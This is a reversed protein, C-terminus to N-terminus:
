NHSIQQYIIHFRQIQHQSRHNQAQQLHIQLVFTNTKYVIYHQVTNNPQDRIEIISIAVILFTFSGHVLKSVRM